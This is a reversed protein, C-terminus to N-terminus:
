HGGERLVRDSPWDLSSPCERGGAVEHGLRDKPASCGVEARARQIQWLRPRPKRSRGSARELGPRFALDHPIRRYYGSTTLWLIARGSTM